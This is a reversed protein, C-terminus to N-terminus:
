QVTRRAQRPKPYKAMQAAGIERLKTDPTGSIDDFYANATLEGHNSLAVLTDDVVKEPECFYGKLVHKTDAAVVQKYGELAIWSNRAWVRAMMLGHGYEGNKFNDIVKAQITMGPFLEHSGTQVGVTGGVEICDHTELPQGPLLNELHCRGDGGLSEMFLREHKAMDRKLIRTGAVVKDDEVGLVFVTSERRDQEDPWTGYRKRGADGYMDLYRQARLAFYQQLLNDEAKSHEPNHIEIIDM